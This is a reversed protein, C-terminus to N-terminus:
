QIPKGNQGYTQVINAETIVGNTFTFGVGGSAPYGISISPTASVKSHGYQIAISLREMSTSNNFHVYGYGSTAMGSYESHSFMRYRPFVSRATGIDVRSFDYRGTALYKHADDTYDVMGFSDGMIVPSATTGKVSGLGKIGVIDNFGWFPEKSWSWQYYIRWDKYNNTIENIGVQMYITAASSRLQAPTMKKSTDITNSSISNTNYRSIQYEEQPSNLRKKYEEEYNFNKLSEIDEETWGSNLLEDDPTNQLQMLMDYENACVTVVSEPDVNQEFISKSHEDTTLASAEVSTIPLIVLILALIGGIFKKM